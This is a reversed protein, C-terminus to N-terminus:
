LLAMCTTANSMYGDLVCRGCRLNRTHPPTPPHYRIDFETWASLPLTPNFIGNTHYLPPLNEAQCKAAMTRLTDPLGSLPQATNVASQPDHHGASGDTGPMLSELLIAMNGDAHLSTQAILPELARRTSNWKQFVNTEPM